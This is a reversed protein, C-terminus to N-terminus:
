IATNPCESVCADCAICDENIFLAM